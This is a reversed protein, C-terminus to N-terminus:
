TLVRPQYEVRQPKYKRCERIQQWLELLYELNRQKSPKNLEERAKNWFHFDRVKKSKLPFLILLASLYNVESLNHFRIMYRSHSNHSGQNNGCPHKYLHGFGLEKKIYELVNRDDERLSICLEWRYTNYRGKEGSSLLKIVQQYKIQFCGEGDVFGSFWSCFNSDLENRNKMLLLVKYGVFNNTAKVNNAYLCSTELIKEPM